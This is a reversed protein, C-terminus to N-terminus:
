PAGATGSPSGFYHWINPGEVMSGIYPWHVVDACASNEGRVAIVIKRKAKQDDDVMIWVCLKGSDLGVRLYRLTYYGAPIEIVEDAEGDDVNGRGHLPYKVIRNM